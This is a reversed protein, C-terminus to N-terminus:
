QMHKSDMSLFELQFLEPILENQLLDSSSNELSFASQSQPQLWINECLVRPKINIQKYEPTSNRRESIRRDLAIRGGRGM